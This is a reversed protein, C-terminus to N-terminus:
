ERTLLHTMPRRAAFGSAMLWLSLGLYTVGLPLGWAEQTLPLRYGLLVPLTIGALQMMTTLFGAAALALPVLALRLLVGWFLLIWGVVSLLHTYHAWLWAARVMPAMAALVAAAEGRARGHELSLSLLSLFHQNEVIQMALSVVALALLWQGLARSRPVLIPGATIAIAIPIVGGVFLLAVALRIRAEMGAAVALANSPAASVSQLMVYPTVLGTALHLFVLAGIIRGASKESRM